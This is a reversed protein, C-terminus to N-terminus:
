IKKNAYSNKLEELTIDEYNEGIAMVFVKIITPPVKPPVKIEM